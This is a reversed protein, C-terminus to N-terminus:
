PGVAQTLIVHLDQSCVSQQVGDEAEWENPKPQPGVMQMEVLNGPPASAAPGPDISESGSSYPFFCHDPLESLSKDNNKMKNYALTYWNLYEM